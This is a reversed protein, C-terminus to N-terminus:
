EENNIPKGIAQLEKASTKEIPYISKIHCKMPFDNLVMVADINVSLRGTMSQKLAIAYSDDLDYCSGKLEILYRKNFSSSLVLYDNTLSNWRKFNFSRIYKISELKNDVIYQRYATNKQEYTLTDITACGTVTLMLVAIVLTILRNM